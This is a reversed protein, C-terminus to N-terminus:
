LIQSALWDALEHHGNQLADNWDKFGDPRLRGCRAGFRELQSALKEAAGEGADDADFALLVRRLGCAIHLWSPGTTGCLALAPFGCSVLSLADIPAEVLVIAPVRPDLPSFLQGEVSIPAFFAGEKKPGFTRKANGRVARGQAAVLEDSRNYIPFVVSARGSWSPCYRTRAGAIAAASLGRSHLYKEGMSGAIERSHEWAKMWDWSTPEPGVSKFELGSQETADRELLPKELPAQMSDALETMDPSSAAPAALSFTERLNQRARNLRNHPADEWKEEVKGSEGCRFCKWLGTVRDLSLSRHASDKPKDAGCLPCWRRTPPGQPDFADIVAFTLHIRSSM